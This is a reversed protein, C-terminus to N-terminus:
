VANRKLFRECRPSGACDPRGGSVLATVYQFLNGHSNPQIGTHKGATHDSPASFEHQQECQCHHRQLADGRGRGNQEAMHAAFLAGRVDHVGLVDVVVMLHILVKMMTMVTVAPRARLSHSMGAEMMERGSQRYHRQRCHYQAEVDSHGRRVNQVIEENGFPM